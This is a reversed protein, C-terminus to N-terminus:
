VMELGNKERKRERERFMLSRISLNTSSGKVAPQKESDLMASPSCCALLDFSSVLEVGM